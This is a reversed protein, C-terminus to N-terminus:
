NVSGRRLHEGAMRQQHSGWPVTNVEFRMHPTQMTDESVWTEWCHLVCRFGERVGCVYGGTTQQCGLAGSVMGSGTSRCTEGRGQM